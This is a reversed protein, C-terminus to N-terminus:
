QGVHILNRIKDNINQAQLYHFPTRVQLLIKLQKPFLNSYQLPSPYQKRYITTITVLFTSYSVADTM